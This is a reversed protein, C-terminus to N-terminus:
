SATGVDSQPSSRQSVVPASVPGAGYDIKVEGPKGVRPDDPSVWEHIRQTIAEDGVQVVRHTTLWVLPKPKDKM